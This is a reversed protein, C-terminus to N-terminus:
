WNPNLKNKNKISDCCCCCFDIWVIRQECFDQFDNGTWTNQKTKNNNRDMVRYFDLILIFTLYKNQKTTTTISVILPDMQFSRYKKILFLVISDIYWYSENTIRIWSFYNFIWQNIKSILNLYNLYPLNVLNTIM